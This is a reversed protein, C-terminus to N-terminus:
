SSTSRGNNENKIEAKLCDPCLCDEGNLEVLIPEDMCWCKEDGGCTFSENCKRCTKIM